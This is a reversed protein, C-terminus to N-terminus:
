RRRSQDDLGDLRQHFFRKRWKSIVQRSTDVKLAIQDNRLGDAAHLIIKARIVDKYPSTYKRSLNELVDRERESLVIPSLVPDPCLVRKTPQARHLENVYYTLTNLSM